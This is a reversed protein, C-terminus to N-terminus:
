SVSQGVSRSVSQDIARNSSQEISRNISQDISPYISLYISVQLQWLHQQLRSGYYVPKLTQSTHLTQSMCLRDQLVVPLSMLAFADARIMIGVLIMQIQLAGIMTRTLVHSIMILPSLMSIILSLEIVWCWSLTLDLSLNLTLILGLM